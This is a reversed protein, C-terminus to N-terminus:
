PGLRIRYYRSPNNTAAGTDTYNTITDGNVGIIIGGSIDTFSNATYGGAVDGGTAQVVNTRVGATKWTIVIDTTERVASIIQFTSAPNTPNLGVLFQNTNSIGKGLPDADPLAAMGTLGYSAAWADFASPYVTISMSSVVQAQGDDATLRLLYTGATDFMATSNTANADGFSVIGPGSLKSWTTTFVGGDSATGTLTIPAGVVAVQNTGANVTPALNAAPLAILALVEGQGFTRKYIRVDDIRGDFARFNTGGYNGIFLDAASDDLATNTISFPGNSVDTLSSPSGNVYIAPVNTSSGSNYSIAVHTWANTSMVTNARWKNTRSSTFAQELQLHLLGDVFPNQFFVWGGAGKDFIRGLSGGGPSATNIWASVTAGNTFLTSLGTPHGANVSNNTVGAINVAGNLYGGPTWLAASSATANLSNGSSDFAITGTTEDFKWYAALGSAFTTTPDVTVIVDQTSQLQGDSATLRIVYVGTQSFTATTVAVSPTGFTVSGPGSIQSWATTLVTPQSFGDDTVTANLILASNTGALTAIAGGPSNITIVPPQNFLVEIGSSKANDTVTTYQIVIQGSGNANAAFQRVIAKNQGGAAAIIDFNALVQTGNISVNFRRQGVSNWYFEVFHLRVTCTASPTLGGFTYTFNGYRETQYVSQPAPNTVASTDITNTASAVTGGSFNADATFNGAAYGGSNASKTTVWVVSDTITQDGLKGIAVLLNTGSVLTRGTWKYIHDTSPLTGQTAGNIRLEVKDCNSYVKVEVTNTARPAFRRSTIYILANTTWNAKYWYFADKRTQRDYTVLGKDNRGQADGENRGDSAFDFMNWIFKGWLYPRTVMQKWHAEHLRSQYEEYHSTTSDNPTAPTTPNELHQYISAGAGYESIGMPRNTVAHTSDVGAGFDNYSGTYWGYYRNFAIVDTYWNSADGDAVCCSAATTPRTPDEAKALQHLARILPRPDPGAVLFVENYIGWFCVSPHNYNQRIMETLQQSANNSFNASSTISNILPIESWAVLGNQDCFDYDPQAHQYHSLRVATAGIEKIMGLDEQRDADSIAWGKNLRDQHFNVGHLDLYQGNLFFGNTANVSFYRFGLPQQVLDNTATGDSVEVYVQYLYPDARGNWLHPTSVTTGQVFDIGANANIAQNSTLTAVINTAADVIVSTVTLNKSLGNDNRIRTTIQLDASNSSVNTQKLYVGPSGYNLPSVHLKDTVLLHVSRYLGGFFTFDASLPPIDTNSANNVKVAIINDTGVNVYSTVDFVFASFGGQHEGVFNGNVYVDAVINAGDFKLFFRRNTLSSDVTYHRRYWGIGRFYDNGGDQGDLNNWTHPISISLWSSDDFNTNPADPINALTFRWGTNLNLDTRNSTPPVYQANTQVCLASLWLLITSLSIKLIRLVVGQRVNM